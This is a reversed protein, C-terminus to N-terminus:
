IAKMQAPINVYHSVCFDIGRQTLRAYPENAKGDGRTSMIQKAIGRKIALKTPTRDAKCILEDARLLAYLRKVTMRPDIQALYRAVKTITTTGDTDIIADYAVAKPLMRANDETLDRVKQQEDALANFVKAINRPDAMMDAMTQPTLYAGHKRISPIIEDFVWSEFKVAAELKSSAVLRYMDGETIFRAMQERGLSDVIPYRKLGGDANASKCHDRVAKSPNAYGLAVAVDKACFMPNGNEDEIIRLEGFEESQFLQISSEM